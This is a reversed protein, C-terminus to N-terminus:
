NLFLNKYKKFYNSIEDAIDFILAKETRLDMFKFIKKEKPIVCM